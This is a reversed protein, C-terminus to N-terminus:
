ADERPFAALSAVPMVSFESTQVIVNIDATQVAADLSARCTYMGGDSTVLSNFTLTNVNGMVNAM